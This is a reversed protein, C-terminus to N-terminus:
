LAKVAEAEIPLAVKEGPLVFRRVFALSIDAVDRWGSDITLAHGRGPVKQIETVSPNRKQQNYSANAISWPVVHDLEGDLILLPGRDPNKTDVKAETWPNLNAGAAQFLPEGPAAVAFTDYLEHAEAETVANAFAYRFQDYTLPVARGRNFPNSLAPSASRLASMPLPLVGRFPAPDIAVSAASLGRGALIQAMLGGFSHGIVAPKRELKRIVDELHDAVEKISKGAFVEPHAKAETVTEPDDPWGPALTAYGAEGFLKQWRDWSSPLLWLGHVFVVPPRGSGNAEGIQRQEHETIGAM